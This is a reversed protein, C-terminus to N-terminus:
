ITILKITGTLYDTTDVPIKKILNDFVVAPPDDHRFVVTYIEGHFNLTYSAGAVASRTMIADVMAKTFWGTEENAVLTIPTGKELYLSRLVLKGGLTRKVSQAVNVQQFRDVWQLSGNLEVGDFTIAM